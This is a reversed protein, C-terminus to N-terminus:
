YVEQRKSLEDMFYCYHEYRLPNIQDGLRQRISCRPESLHRCDRFACEGSYKVFEPFLTALEELKLDALELRTFGPTDVVSGGFDLPLLEAQRTTHRGRKIKDSVAGTKLTLGPQLANLLSSKGAGSPGAFVSCKGSLKEALSDLGLGSLASSFLIRYPFPKLQKEIENLEDEEVLDAKNLCLLAEMGEKEALVLLRSALQWDSSPQRLSMIVALQDINAVNPRNLCSNRPLLEEIMGQDLDDAVAPAVPKLPPMFLVRDGVMLSQNDRKLNGRARCQYIEGTETYVTFFGGAARIITGQNM